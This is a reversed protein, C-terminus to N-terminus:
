NQAILIANEAEILRAHLRERQLDNCKEHAIEAKLEAIEQQLMNKTLKEAEVVAEALIICRNHAMNVYGGDAYYRIIKSESTHVEIIGAQLMAIIASHHPMIGIDGAEAPAVVMQVQDDFVGGEPTVIELHLLEM